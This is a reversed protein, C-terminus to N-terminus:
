LWCSRSQRLPMTHCVPKTKHRTPLATYKSVTLRHLCRVAKFDNLTTDGARVALVPEKAIKWRRGDM